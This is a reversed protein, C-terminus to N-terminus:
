FFEKIGPTNPWNQVDALHQTRGCTKCWSYPSHTTTKPALWCVTRGRHLSCLIRNGRCQLTDGNCSHVAVTLLCLECPNEWEKREDKKKCSGLLLIDYGWSIYPANQLSWCKSPLAGPPSCWSNCCCRERRTSCVPSTWPNSYGIRPNGRFRLIRCRNSQVSTSSELSDPHPMVDM